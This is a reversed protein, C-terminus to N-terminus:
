VFNETCYNGNIAADNQYCVNNFNFQSYLSALSSKIAADIWGSRDINYAEGVLSIQTKAFRGIPKLAWNMLETNTVNSNSRQFHWASPWIKTLTKIPRSIEVDTFLGKLGRLLEEVMDDQSNRAILDSWMGVCLGDDYVTKTVNMDRKAPHQSLIEIFSICNQRTWARDIYKGFLISNEWWRNSWYNVIIITRVPLISQFYKTSKIENAVTGQVNSWGLPPIALILQKCTIKYNMTEVSYSKDINENIEVVPENVYLRVQNFNIANYLMRKVIQSLGQHPYYIPAVLNFDQKLFEMYSYVDTNLFDARFRFSDRLYETAEDGLVYRCFANVDAYNYSSAPNKGYEELLKVWLQDQANMGSSDDTCDLNTYSKSCMENYSTYFKGRTKILTTQYDYQYYSINLEDILQKVVPQNAYFRMGGFPIIPNSSYALPINENNDLDYLRGGVYNEREFICLNNKFRPGLRYAIHSGAIGAGLIAVPCNLRIKDTILTNTADPSLKELSCFELQVSRIITPDTISSMIISFKKYEFQLNNLLKNVYKKWQSNTIQKQAPGLTFRLNLPVGSFLSGDACQISVLNSIDKSIIFDYSTILLNIQRPRFLQALQTNLETINKIKVLNQSSLDTRYTVSLVVINQDFSPSIAHNQLYTPILSIILIFTIGTATLLALSISGVMLPMVQIMH